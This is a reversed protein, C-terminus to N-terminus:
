VAALEEGAEQINDIEDSNEREIQLQHQSDEAEVHARQRVDFTLM